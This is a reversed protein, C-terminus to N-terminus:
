EILSLRVDDIEIIGVMQGWGIELGVRDFHFNSPVTIRAEAEAWDTFTPFSMILGTTIPNQDQDVLRVNLNIDLTTTYAIRLSYSQGPVLDLNDVALLAAFPGTEEPRQGTQLLLSKQQENDVEAVIMALDDSVAGQFVWGATHLAVDDLMEIQGHMSDFTWDAGAQAILNLDSNTATPRPTKFAENDIVQGILDNENPDQNLEVCNPEDLDGDCDNDIGDDCIEDIYPSAWFNNDDCDAITSAGDRDLDFVLDEQPNPDPCSDTNNILAVTEQCVSPVVTTVPYGSRERIRWLPDVVQRRQCEDTFPDYVRGKQCICNCEDWDAVGLEQCGEENDPTYRYSDIEQATAPLALLLILGTFLARM